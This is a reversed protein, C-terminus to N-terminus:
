ADAFFEVGDLAVLATSGAVVSLVGAATIKVAGIFSGNTNSALPLFCDGGPRYGAPLTFVPGNLAGSKISGRFIVTGASTLRFGPTGWPSGVPVWGNQLPSLPTWDADGGGGGGGAPPDVWATDFDTASVKSLM